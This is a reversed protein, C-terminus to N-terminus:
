RLPPIEQFSKFFLALTNMSMRPLDSTTTNRCCIPWLKLMLPVMRSLNQESVASDHKAVNSELWSCSLLRKTRANTALRQQGISLSERLVDSHHSDCLQVNVSMSVPETSYSDTTGFRCITNPYDGLAHYKYRRLNLQKRLPEQEDSGAVTAADSNKRDKGKKRRRCQRADKECRLERTDFASCTKDVFARFQAGLQVTTEDLIDLTLDTHM